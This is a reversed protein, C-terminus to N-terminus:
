CEMEKTVPWKAGYCCWLTYWTRYITSKLRDPIHKDCLMGTLSGWELWAANVCAIIVHVLSGDSSVM